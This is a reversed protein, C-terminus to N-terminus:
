RRLGLAQLDSDGRELRDGLRDLYEVVARNILLNRSVAFHDATEDLAEVIEPPFRVATAIRQKM